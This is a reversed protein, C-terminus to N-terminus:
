AQEHSGILIITAGVAAIVTGVAAGAGGHYTMDEVAPSSVWVAFQYVCFEIPLHRPITNVSLSEKLIYLDFLATCFLVPLFQAEGGRMITYVLATNTASSLGKGIILTVRAVALKKHATAIATTISCLGMTVWFALQANRNPATPLSQGSFHLDAAVILVALAIASAAVKIATPPNDAASLWIITVMGIGSITTVLAPSMSPIVLLMTCDAFVAAALAPWPWGPRRRVEVSAFGGTLSAIAAVLAAFQWPRVGVYLLASM